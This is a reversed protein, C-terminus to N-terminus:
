GSSAADVRGGPTDIDLIVASAGSEQAEKLSRAVFPAVGLEITGTIPVRVVSRSADQAGARDAGSFLSTASLAVAFGLVFLPTSRHNRSDSM